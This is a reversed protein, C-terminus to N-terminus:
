FLHRYGRRGQWLVQLLVAKSTKRPLVAIERELVGTQSHRHGLEAQHTPKTCVELLAQLYVNWFLTQFRSISPM